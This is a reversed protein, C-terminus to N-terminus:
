SVVPRKLSKTFESRETGPEEHFCGLSSLLYLGQPCKGTHRHSSARTINADSVLGTHGFQCFATFLPTPLTWLGEPSYSNAGSFLGSYMAAGSSLGAAGRGVYPTKEFLSVM